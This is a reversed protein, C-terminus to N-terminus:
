TWWKLLHKKLILCLADLDQQRMRDPLEIIRMHEKREQADLEPTTANERRCHWQVCPSDEIPTTWDMLRGWKRDHHLYTNEHYDREILRDLHLLAVHVNRAEDLAGIWGDRDLDKEVLRLKHRLVILIYAHDWDCDRWLIPLWYILKRVRHFFRRIM